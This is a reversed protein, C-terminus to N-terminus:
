IDMDDQLEAIYLIKVFSVNRKMKTALKLALEEARGEVESDDLLNNEDEKLEVWVTDWQGGVYGVAVEVNRM